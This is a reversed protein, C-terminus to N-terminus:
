FLGFYRLVKGAVPIALAIICLTIYVGKGPTGGIQGPPFAKKGM